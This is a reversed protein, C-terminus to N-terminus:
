LINNRRDSCIVRFNLEFQYRYLLEVALIVFLRRFILACRMFLWAFNCAGESPVGSEERFRENTYYSQHVGPLQSHLLLNPASSFCQEVSRQLQRRFRTSRKEILGAAVIVIQPLLDFHENRLILM